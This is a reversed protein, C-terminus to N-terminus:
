VSEPLLHEVFCGMSASKRTLPRGMFALVVVPSKSTMPIRRRRMCFGQIALLHFLFLEAMRLSAVLLDDNFSVNM